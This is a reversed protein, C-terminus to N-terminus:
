TKADAGRFLNQTEVFKQFRKDAERKPYKTSKRESIDVLFLKGPAHALGHMLEAHCIGVDGAEEMKTLWGANGNYLVLM